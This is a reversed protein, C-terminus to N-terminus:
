HLPSNDFNCDAAWPDDDPAFRGRRSNDDWTDSRLDIAHLRAAHVFVVSRRERRGPGGADSPCGATRRVFTTEDRGGKEEFVISEFNSSAAPPPALSREVRRGYSRRHSVLTM